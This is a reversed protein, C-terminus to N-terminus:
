SLNIKAFTHIDRTALNKSTLMKVLWIRLKNKSINKYTKVLEERDRGFHRLGDEM